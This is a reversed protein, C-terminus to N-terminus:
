VALNIFDPSIDLGFYVSLCNKLYTMVSIKQIGCTTLVTWFREHWENGRIGRSGQTVARDLVTQRIALEAANNTPEIGSEIFRFYEDEHERLRKAILRAEKQEPVTGVARKVILERHRGMREKWAEEGIEDKRHITQFMQRIQKIIRKGYRVVAKEQLTELFLVERILHARCFQVAAGSVRSFKRYAGFFDSTIIGAFATGPIEELVKEGRSERIIFVAYKEARFAWTWRKRGKEKWGSEDINLHREESLRKVLRMYTEKLSAGAKMVQKALFGRSVVVGLVEHFFDKLASFSIHCRGKLYAAFAILSISFLGSRGQEPLPATHYSQCNPCWYSHQRYETVIFPKAAIEIQQNKIVEKGSEELEGGCLPCKSLTADIFQDVQEPPFPM